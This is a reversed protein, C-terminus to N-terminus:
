SATASQLVHLTIEPQCFLRLPVGCSGTGPSTYGQTDGVRWAGRLLRRPSSDNRLVIWGGPLCIQGGHTHGALVFDLKAAMAEKFISPSHSLLIRPVGAPVGALARSLDHTRYINPDDIGILALAAGAHRLLTHENLLFRIGLAELPEVSELFDHNGLVAFIPAKIHQRLRRMLRLVPRSSGFTQNRFDGTIVCVDYELPKLRQIWVDVLGPDLDIHLDSLHLMRYGELAPPLRRLHVTNRRVAINRFHRNAHGYLGLMHFIASIGHSFRGLAAAMRNIRNGYGRSRASEM